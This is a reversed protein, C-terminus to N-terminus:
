APRSLRRVRLMVRGLRMRGRAAERASSRLSANQAGRADATIGVSRVL